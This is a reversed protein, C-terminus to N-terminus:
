AARLEEVFRCVEMDIGATGANLERAWRGMEDASERARAAIDAIAAVEQHIETSAFRVEATAEAIDRTARGECEVQAAITQSLSDIRLIQRGINGHGDSVAVIAERIGVIQRDIDRTACAVRSSLAKVENAVVTFGRGSEGARQAEIAANLALLNVQRAIDGILTIVSGVQVAANHLREAHATGAEVLIVAEHVANKAEQSDAAIRSLAAALANGNEAIAEIRNTTQSAAAAVASARDGSARSRDTTQEARDALRGAIATITSCLSSLERQMAQSIAEIREARMIRRQARDTELDAALMVLDRNALVAHFRGNRTVIMGENNNARRYAAILKALSVHHEITPCLRIHLSCDQGFSPNRLLAHGFPNLLLRRVDREYIAGLPRMTADVVPLLRLDPNDQFLAVVAAMPEGEAIWVSQAAAHDIWRSVSFPAAPIPTPATPLM